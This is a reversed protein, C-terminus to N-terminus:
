GGRQVRECSEETDEVGQQGEATELRARARGDNTEPRPIQLANELEKRYSEFFKIPNFNEFAQVGAKFDNYGAAEFLEILRALSIV